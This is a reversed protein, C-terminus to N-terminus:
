KLDRFSTRNKNEKQNHNCVFMIYSKSIYKCVFVHTRYDIKTLFPNKNPEKTTKKEM